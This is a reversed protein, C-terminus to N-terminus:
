GRLARCLGGGARAPNGRCLCFSAAPAFPIHDSYFCSVSVTSPWIRSNRRFSPSIIDCKRWNALFLCFTKKNSNKSVAPAAVYVTYEDTDNTVTATGKSKATIKGTKANVKFYKKYKAKKVSVLKYTVTGQADTITLAKGIAIKQAKKKRDFFLRVRKSMVPLVNTLGTVCKQYCM